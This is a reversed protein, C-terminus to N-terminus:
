GRVIGTIGCQISTAVGADGYWTQTDTGAGFELWALFHRGIGPYGRYESLLMAEVTNTARGQVKITAGNVTTSDIGIGSCVPRATSTSNLCLSAATADVLDESVGIVMDLQNAASGNAQRFSGTFYNWTDTAEVVSMPRDLRNYYNWVYRKALSDETQGSSGTTRFSGLYRRTTTGNKVLVGDQYALATARTTDNTWALLELTAAGSNSYCFVDYMTNTTAPVAISLETFAVTRWVSGDYLSIRNGRYPTYYLTTKATQDTTTVPAGTALTLRGDSFITKALPTFVNNTIDIQGIEIDDTGDYAFLTWLTSSPTNDDIWLQGAYATSPRSNGKSTSALAQLANNLDGRLAANGQNAISMDHQSM